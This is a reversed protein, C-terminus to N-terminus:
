KRKVTIRIDDSFLGPSYLFYKTYTKGEFTGADFPQKYAGAQSTKDWLITILTTGYEAHVLEMEETPILLYHVNDTQHIIFTTENSGTVTKATSTGLAMIEAATTQTFARAGESGDVHTSGYYLTAEKGPTPRESVRISFNNSFHEVGNEDLVSAKAVYTNNEILNKTIAPSFIISSSLPLNDKMVESGWYIKLSNEKLGRNNIWVEAGTFTIQQTGVYSTTSPILKFNRLFWSSPQFDCDCEKSPLPIECTTEFFCYLIDEVMRREVASLRRGFERTFDYLFDTVLLKYVTQDGRYGYASLTKFYTNLSNYLIEEM